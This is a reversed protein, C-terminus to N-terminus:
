TERHALVRRLDVRIPQGPTSQRSEAILRNVALKHSRGCRCAAIVAEGDVYGDLPWFSHGGGRTQRVECAVQLVVGAPLAVDPDPVLVRAVRRGRCLVDLVARHTEIKALAASQLGKPLDQGEPRQGSAWERRRAAVWGPDDSALRRSLEDNM